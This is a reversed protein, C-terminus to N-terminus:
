LRLDILAVLLLAGIKPHYQVEDSTNNTGVKLMYGLNILCKSTYYVWKYMQDFLPAILIFPAVPFSCCKRRKISWAATQVNHMVNLMNGISFSSVRICVIGAPQVDLSSIQNAYCFM